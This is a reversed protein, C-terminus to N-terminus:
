MDCIVRENLANQTESDLDVYPLNNEAALALLNAKQKPSLNADTVIDYCNKQFETMNM